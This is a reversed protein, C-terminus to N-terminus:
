TSLRTGYMCMTHCQPHQEAAREVEERYVRRSRPGWTVRSAARATRWTARTPTDAARGSGRSTEDDSLEIETIWKAWKYGWKDEAVLQFPFGRETPLEVGNMSYAMLIDNDHIYDLPLSTSYDDACRFIVITAEDQVGAKEFMDALLVGEWLIDVSWGEVCNLTVLKEYAENGDVVEDYTFEIPDDVLGTVTLTYTELDVEQPGKISNERFDDASSLDKGEYETVEGPALQSAERELDQPATSEEEEPSTCGALALAIIALVAIALALQPEDHAEKTLREPDRASEGRVGSVDPHRPRCPTHEWCGLM